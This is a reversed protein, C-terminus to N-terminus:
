EIADVHLRKAREVTALAADLATDVVPCIIKTRGEGLIVGRVNITKM